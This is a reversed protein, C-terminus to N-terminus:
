YRVLASGWCFGASCAELLILNGKKIRGDRVGVDLAIPVSAASTNGQDELTLIVREIPLGLRKATAEIIRLNAQHPILWDIEEKSINNHQLAEEVVEGLKTVAVKFVANGQMKIRLPSSTDYLDGDLYLLDEYNGDAHLHTSYIGPKSDAQLVAAGAGDAFLICTTRDTWDVLKTLTDVGIVLACEIAGSKIYQDVISLAYIFGSCAVNIDFAPCVMSSIGLLRQLSAATSPFLRQPTCTAVVILQIKNKDIGAAEIAKRAAAEAMTTSHENPAAIHRRKIGTREMIWADSTDVMKALDDNTLIKEPLYSGTGIINSYKM